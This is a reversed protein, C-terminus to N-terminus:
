KRNNLITVVADFWGRLEARFKPKLLEYDIKVQLEKDAIEALIWGAAEGVTFITRSRSFDRWFGCGRILRRDDDLAVLLAPIADTGFGLTRSHVVNEQEDYSWDAGGPQGWQRVVVDGLREVWFEPKTDDDAKKPEQRLDLDVLLKRADKLWGDFNTQPQTWGSYKLLAEAHVRSAADDFNSHAHVAGSFRAWALDYVLSRFLDEESASDQLLLSLLRSSRPYGALGKAKEIQVMYQARLLDHARYGVIWGGGFGPPLNVDDSEVAPKSLRDITRDVEADFDFERFRLQDRTGVSYDLEDSYFIYKGDTEGPFLWGPM